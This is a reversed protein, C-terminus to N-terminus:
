EEELNISYDALLDRCFVYSLQKKSKIHEMLAEYLEPIDKKIRELLKDGLITRLKTM